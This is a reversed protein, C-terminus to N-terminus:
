SRSISCRESSTRVNARLAQYFVEPDFAADLPDPAIHWIPAPVSDQGAGWPVVWLGGFTRQDVFRLDPGGDSFCFRVRLHREAPTGPPVVLLQGSMGLHALLVDGSDLPMWLYKGRRNVADVRREALRVGFDVDGERHRRVARPHAVAVAAFTRGGVHRELGARVIEVEPLEPM